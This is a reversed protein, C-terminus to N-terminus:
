IVSTSSNPACCPATASLSSFLNGPSHAASAQFLLFLMAVPRNINGCSPARHGCGADHLTGLSRSSGCPGTTSWPGPRSITLYGNTPGHLAALAASVRVLVISCERTGAPTSFSAWALRGVWGWRTFPRCFVRSLARVQECVAMGHLRGATLSSRGSFPRREVINGRADGADGGRGVPELLALLACRHGSHNEAPPAIRAAGIDLM